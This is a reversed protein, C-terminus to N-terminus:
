PERRGDPRRTAARVLRAVRKHSRAAKSGRETTVVAQTNEDSSEPHVTVANVAVPVTRVVAQDDSQTIYYRVPTQM